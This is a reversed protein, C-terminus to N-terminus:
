VVSLHDDVREPIETTLAIPTWSGSTLSCCSRSAMPTSASGRRIDAMALARVPPASLRRLMAGNSLAQTGIIFTATFSYAVVAMLTVAQRELQQYGGGYFLGNAGRPNVSLTAFLGVCLSGVAGGVLHVGVVDLSDDLNFWSKVSVALACLFGAILGIALSGVPSVFGACPTIAVLGAVAGSAAGLSTAEGCRPREV